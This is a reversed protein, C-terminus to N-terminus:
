IDNLMNDGDFGLSKSENVIEFQNESSAKMYAESVELEALHLTDKIHMIKADEPETLGITKLADEIAAKDNEYVCPIMAGTPHSSTICNIRTSETNIQDVCRQM